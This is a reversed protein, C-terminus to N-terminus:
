SNNNKILASSANGAMNQTQINGTKVCLDAINKILNTLPSICSQLDSKSRNHMNNYRALHLM